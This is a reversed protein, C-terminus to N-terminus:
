EADGKEVVEAEILKGIIEEEDAKVALAKFGGLERITKAGANVVKLYDDLSVGEDSDELQKLKTAVGLLGHFVMHQAMGVLFLRRLADAREIERTPDWRALTHSVTSPTVGLFKAIRTPGWGMARLGVMGQVREPVGHKADFLRIARFVEAATGALSEPERVESEVVKQEDMVSEKWTGKV